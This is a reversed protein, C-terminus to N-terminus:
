DLEVLEGSSYSEKIGQIEGIWVFNAADDQDDGAEIAKKYDPNTVFVSIFDVVYFLFNLYLMRRVWVSKRQLLSRIVKLNKKLIKRLCRNQKPQEHM